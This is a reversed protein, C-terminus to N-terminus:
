RTGAKIVVEIFVVDVRILSLRQGIVQRIDTDLRFPQHCVDSQFRCERAREDGGGLTM